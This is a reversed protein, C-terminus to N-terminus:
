NDRERRYEQVSRPMPEPGIFEPELERLDIPEGPMHHVDCPRMGFGMNHNRCFGDSSGWEDCSCCFCTKRELVWPTAVVLRRYTGEPVEEEERWREDGESTVSKDTITVNSM